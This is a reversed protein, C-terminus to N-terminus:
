NNHMAARVTAVPSAYSSVSMFQQTEGGNNGNCVPRGTTWSPQAVAASSGVTFEVCQDAASSNVGSCMLQLKVLKGTLLEDRMKSDQTQITSKYLQNSNTIYLVHDYKKKSGNNDLYFRQWKQTATNWFSLQDGNCQVAGGSQTVIYNGVLLRQDGGAPLNTM